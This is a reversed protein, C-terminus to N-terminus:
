GNLAKKLIIKLTGFTLFWLSNIRFLLAFTRRWDKQTNKVVMQQLNNNLKSALPLNIMGKDKATRVAKNLYLPLERYAAKNQKGYSQYYRYYALCEDLYYFKAQMSCRAWFEVDEGAQPMQTNFGGVQDVLAGRLLPTPMMLTWNGILRDSVWGHRDAPKAPRGIIRDTLQGQKDIVQCYGHVLAFDTYENLINVQKEIKEPLWLDDDDLFAIFEGKALEIGKNRPTAPGGSNPIKLYQVEQITECLEQAASTPSGDDVVIIEISNYTQSLVSQLTERLYDVRNYTPIIVSVLGKVSM